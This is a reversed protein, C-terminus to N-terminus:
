LCLIFLTQGNTNVPLVEQVFNVAAGYGDNSNLVLAITQGPNANIATTM